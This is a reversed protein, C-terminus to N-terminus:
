SCANCSQSSSLEVKKCTESLYGRIILGEGKRLSLDSLSVQPEDLYSSLVLEVNVFNGIVSTRTNSDSFNIVIIYYEKYDDSSDVWRLYVLLDQAANLCMYEGDYLGEETGHLELLKKYLSLTSSTDAKEVQVNYTSYNTALPLWPETGPFTFGSHNSTNWQM